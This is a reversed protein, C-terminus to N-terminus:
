EFSKEYIRIRIRSDVACITVYHGNLLGNLYPLNNIVKDIYFEVYADEDYGYLEYHTVEFYVRLDQAVEILQQLTPRMNLYVLNTDHAVELPETINKNNKNTSCLYLFLISMRLYTYVNIQDIHRCFQEKKVATDKKVLKSVMQSM